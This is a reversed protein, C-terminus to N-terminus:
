VESRLVVIGVDPAIKPTRAAAWGFDRGTVNITGVARAGTTKDFLKLDKMAQETVPPTLPATYVVEKDFVGVYFVPLKGIDKSAQLQETLRRKLPIDANPMYMAAAANNILVDIPGLEAEVTPVIRARDDGDALDATITLM